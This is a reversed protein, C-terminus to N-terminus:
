IPRGSTGIKPWDFGIWWWACYKKLVSGKVGDEWRREELKDKGVLGKTGVRM